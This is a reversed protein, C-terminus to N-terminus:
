HGREIRLQAHVVDIGHGACCVMLQRLKEEPIKGSAVLVEDIRNATLILEIEALTGIVPVGRVSRRSKTHDDDLFGVAVRQLGADMQVERLALAGADGAGYILTRRAPPRGHEPAAPRLEESLIRFAVRSGYLFVVLLFWDLIFVARSFGEFRFVLAITVIALASGLSAAKTLRILDSVSTYRWMGAYTRYLALAGVQCLVVIPLGQQFRNQVATLDNEFRLLYAAQYAAVVLGFDILVALVQRRQNLGAVIARLILGPPGVKDVPDHVEVRSLHVALMAVGLFLLVILVAGPSLGYRYSFLAIAGSILAVLYLVDVARKESLGLAVLRHSTHDRGGVSIPRGAFIRTLTVFATDFLPVLVLLAPLVLVAVLSRTYPYGGILSMGGAFFGLFMSGADGMFIRAPNRNFVLFGAAAGLLIAAVTAAALNGDQLLFVVRFGAAIAAIGAALGDMNDLLNFANTLALLWLLTLPLDIVVEGTVPLRLGLAVVLLAAAIQWLLKTQPRMGRLDDVLGVAAILVGGALLALLKQDGLGVFVLAPVTTGIVIALGGLLPVEGRHWRDERPRAVAGVRRALPMVLLTTTLSLAFSCLGWLLPALEPRLTM